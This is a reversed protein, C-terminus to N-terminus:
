DDDARLTPPRDRRRAIRIGIPGRAVRRRDLAAAREIADVAREAVAGVRAAAVASWTQQAGSDDEVITVALHHRGDDPVATRISAHRLEVERRLLDGVDRHE